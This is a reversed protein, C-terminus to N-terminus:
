SAVRVGSDEEEAGWDIGDLGDHADTAKGEDLVVVRRPRVDLLTRDHTAFVVTTGQAHIDEFLGLIDIALQPDLNGTPEDALILAPQHLLAIAIAVRQRMGGSFEHPYADLRREPDPIGVKALAQLSRQRMEQKSPQGHARMALEMQTSVKLVAN